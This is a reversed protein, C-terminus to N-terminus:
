AAALMAALRMGGFSLVAVVGGLFLVIPPVSTLVTHAAYAASNTLEKM